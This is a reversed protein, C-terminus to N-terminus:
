KDKEYNLISRSINQFTATILRVPRYIYHLPSLWVPLSLKEWDYSTPIFFIHCAYRIVQWLSDLSKWNYLFFRRSALGVTRVSLTQALKKGREKCLLMARRDMRMTSIVDSPLETSLLNVALSIGICVMRVVRFEEAREWVFNWNIDHTTNIVEAICSVHDLQKWVHQNGHICLYVLLDEQGFSPISKGMFDVSTLNPCLSKLCLPRPTYGGSLEWHLDVIVGNEIHRLPYEKDTKALAKLQSNSLPFFPAFGEHIMTEVVSPLDTDSILIDLDCYSRLALDGFVSYTFVPGKFPVAQIGQNEMATLVKLLMGAMMLNNMGQRRLSKQSSAVFQAPITGPCSKLLQRYVLALTRHFCALDFLNEWDVDAARALQALRKQEDENLSVKSGHLLIDWETSM